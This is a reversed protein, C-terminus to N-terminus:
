RAHERWISGWLDLELQQWAPARPELEAVRTRLTKLEFRTYFIARIEGQGYRNGGDDILEEGVVRWGEWLNEIADRFFAARHLAAQEKRTASRV